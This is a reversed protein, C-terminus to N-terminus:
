PTYYAHHALVQDRSIWAICAFSSSNPNRDLDFVGTEIAVRESNRVPVPSAGITSIIRAPISIEWEISV